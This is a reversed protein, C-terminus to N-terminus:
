EPQVAGPRLLFGVGVTAQLHHTLVGDRADDRQTLTDRVDLRVLLSRSLLWRTGFGFHLAPDSDNGLVDNVLRLRGAGLVMFPEIPGLPARGVVHGRFGWLSAAREAARTAAFDAELEVGLFPWPSIGARVGGLPALATVSRQPRTPSHLNHVDSVLWSGAYLGFEGRWPWRAEVSPSSAPPASAVESSVPSTAPSPSAVESSATSPEESQARAASVASVSVLVACGAAITRTGVSVEGTSLAGEIVHRGLRGPSMGM